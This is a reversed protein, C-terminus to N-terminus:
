SLWSKSWLRKARLTILSLNRRIIDISQLVSYVHDWLLFKSPLTYPCCILLWSKIQPNFPNFALAIQIRKEPTGPGLATAASLGPLSQRFWNKYNWQLIHVKCDNTDSLFTIGWPFFINIQFSLYDKLSLVGYGIRKKKDQATKNRQFYFKM